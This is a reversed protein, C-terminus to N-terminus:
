ESAPLNLEVAKKILTQIEIIQEELKSIHADQEQLEKLLMPILHLYAVSEPEGQDNLITLEPMVKHVEEAILGYSHTGCKKYDFEVPHLDYIKNSISLDEINEKYKESSTPATLQGTGLCTVANGTGAVGFIGTIFCATQAAGIRTTNSEGATGSLASGLLINNSESSLYTGGSAEGIIVNGTGTTLALGASFGVITNGSATTGSQFAANGLITNSTGTTLDLGAEFGIGINNSGSTVHQLATSGIAINDNGSTLSALATDGIAIDNAGNVVAALSGAGIAINSNSLTPTFTSAFIDYHNPVLLNSISM